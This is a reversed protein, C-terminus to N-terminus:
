LNLEQKQKLYSSKMEDTYGFEGEILVMEKGDHALCRVEGGGTEEVIVVNGIYDYYDDPLSDARLVELQDGEQLEEITLDGM